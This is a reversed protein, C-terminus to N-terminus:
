DAARVLTAAGPAHRTVALTTWRIEREGIVELEVAGAAFQSYADEVPLVYAASGVTDGLSYRRSPGFAPRLTVAIAGVADSPPIVVVYTARAAAALMAQPALPAVTAPLAVRWASGAPHLAETSSIEITTRRGPPMQLLDAIIEDDVTRVHGDHADTDGGCDAGALLDITHGDRTVSVSDASAATTTLHAGLDIPQATPNHFTQAVRMDALLGLLRMEFVADVLHLPRAAAAASGREAVAVPSAVPTSAIEAATATGIPAMFVLALLEAATSIGDRILHLASM